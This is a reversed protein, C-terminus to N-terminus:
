GVWFIRSNPGQLKPKIATLLDKLNQSYQKDNVLDRSSSLVSNYWDCTWWWQTLWMYVCYNLITLLDANNGGATLTVMQPSKLKSVQNKIIDPVKAGSCALYQLHRYGYWIIMSRRGNVTASPTLTLTAEQTLRESRRQTRLGLDGGHPGSDPGPHPQRRIM